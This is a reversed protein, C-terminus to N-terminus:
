GDAAVFLWSAHPSHSGWGPYRGLPSRYAWGHKNVGEILRGNRDEKRRISSLHLAPDCDYDV